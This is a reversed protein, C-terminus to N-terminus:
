WDKKFDPVNEPKISDDHIEIVRVNNKNRLAAQLRFNETRLKAIQKEQIRIVGNTNHIYGILSIILAVLSIFAFIYIFDM